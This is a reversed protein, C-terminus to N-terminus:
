NGSFADVTLKEDIMVPSLPPPNKRFDVVMERTKSVSINLVSLKFWDTFYKVVPGHDFDTDTLLSVIVSDDAFKIVQCKLYQSQCQNTYLIFLLASRVCQQPHTHTLSLRDFLPRLLPSWLASLINKVDRAPCAKFWIYIMVLVKTLKWSKTLSSHSPFTQALYMKVYKKMISILVCHNSLKTIMQTRFKLREAFLKRVSQKETKYWLFIYRKHSKYLIFLLKFNGRKRLLNVHYLASACLSAYM